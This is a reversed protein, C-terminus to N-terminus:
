DNKEEGNLEFSGFERENYIAPQNRLFKVSIDMLIVEPDLLCFSSLLFFARM